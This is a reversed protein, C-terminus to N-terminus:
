RNMEETLTEVTDHTEQGKNKLEDITMPNKM